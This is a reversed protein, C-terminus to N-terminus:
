TVQRIGTMDFVHHVPDHVLYRGLSAVTFRAGDSRTGSRDWDAGRVTGFRQALLQANQALAVAVETPDQEGYREQEATRDQDWNAFAPEHTTLMAELRQDFVRCVDRVHCGYELASWVDPSPRHAVDPGVMAARVDDVATLLRPVIDNRALASADFGCELCREHLVWTWDKTDPM